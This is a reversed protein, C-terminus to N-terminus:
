SRSSNRTEREHGIEELSFKIPIKGAMGAATREGTITVWKGAKNEELRLKTEIETGSIIVM